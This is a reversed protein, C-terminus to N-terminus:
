LTDPNAFVSVTKQGKTKVSEFIENNVKEELITLNQLVRETDNLASTIDKPKLLPNGTKENKADLDFTNFFNQLRLAAKKVSMYYNYTASANAQFDQLVTIGKLVLEDPVYDDHKMIDKNLRARREDEPYGKYPNTKNVSVMFEIYTFEEMAVFKGPNTDREWIETFPSILLTEINPKVIKNELTFLLSM